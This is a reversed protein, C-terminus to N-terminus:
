KQAQSLVSQFEEMYLAAIEPSHIVLLNEDNKEEASRSFNYSGTVVIQGDIIIVKHHMQDPNGDLRVDMGADRFRQYDSGTNSEVQDSEMVGTIEVGALYRELLADALDDSTFSFALFQVNERAGHILDV